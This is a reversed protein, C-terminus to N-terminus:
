ALITGIDRVNGAFKWLNELLTGVIKCVIELCTGYYHKIVEVSHGM